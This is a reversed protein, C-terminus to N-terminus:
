FFKIWCWKSFIENGSGTIKRITIEASTSTMFRYYITLYFFSTNLLDM